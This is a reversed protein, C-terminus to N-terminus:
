KLHPHDKVIQLALATVEEGILPINVKGHDKFYFSVSSSKSSVNYEIRYLNAILFESENLFPRKVVIRNNPTYTYSVSFYWYAFLFILSVSIFLVCTVMPHREHEWKFLVIIVPILVLFSAVLFGNKFVPSVKINEYNQEMAHNNHHTESKCRIKSFDSVAPFFAV